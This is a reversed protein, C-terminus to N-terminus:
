DHDQIVFRAIIAGMTALGSALAFWGRPMSSEFLPMVVELASFLGAVVALRVSWAKRLVWRWNDVPKLKRM